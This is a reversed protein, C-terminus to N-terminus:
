NRELDMDLALSRIEKVLVNFSEPMGADIVHDGKVINEYVKTRGTIDDSKVTLMEQLTYSAGYAELAWVEMEGFRQGGFQAKGGLPQQTVLSYPGTSRAHMKDDVLHHLKLYHMYGIMVPREFQEGTRGDYLWAQSRSATLRMRAAVDDPYALELMKGIEEETAGDFVPTAFPVGKKLNNALELVEEDTLSDIHASSGTTNYVKELYGRVSKAQATREDRLMDAIRYGVGKAAWGLHVELVQGVNMRSPVGLPNLVIDAPTGDAMHPMDEVPTIRSVVGKNGHRGAMKDGPQLRRKVALYVKIMKLVGPPLEDGQTLKKRKEEFALDFQHRKQELSEKAQELVVAHQEDALRIDFWQWRDLDALYAKTLTAGKALKRPGGNVTKGVLMKEIRDFQDNEVIRLQDNLDQRYRRLEDDIISQARKDRVIGERTFVQVDIVTGTMGSPVRLSTDKVDSAKEGFIARLLKEEPTLQTEGKPTVKGVLVDDASVEAGIYVIGSDDLRNLQTEALNSIDRTIEEPGLKTDRAVVTLEEIHISTYRDDAVVRESILISDEFNYGNWPMFAILMNQGLALEGLDTSAGDALVDGKAVKDGRAVIPRQNINTNQNSRTYKILNYIDVGVEGAVNEEDNVRIVVRDADVHDVVGGRLAQVTTGSDVAVTREVGTGVLPKEPRLCPVAQRQMNAGMLARNADDHELFPILSAAVSVIQSPAVDMYHVNGPATLMTEGAERCAVLDDVFRGEDDLAANAQAIVYHSEEIASLYDIQDSVKGDIIKRYPTELFGYENLRAYLAMSNILGINPGEPTEIPCVRGYHTPHVDRVEFGARERTLGGPGLASVRRKHTIESLPNTQDMFQSLQSSGFFEKIAASIPKSNILDHPMLNETEAQGLREKVAREVRVLGARFQNEALEGVCRVRRNGLHDIDDIQGRGNRLEVLVKITELIDENTLTMPGTSDDGRGLRSNVKMRGVRSLDYTEESYFLRQFLAEVAEETPPEGPRMMRYIAVRAAMQDATEDARLTQSIYPGRDLDNTYLTQIDRVNAARMANLVSETIEDNAHAVVEGTDPDVINKALVRGYLFDEPVSVRQIGGAALDRLHKANIRKDKEVIVKGDRDAIDFRAMEGKWREAVFEMMGGESKLEFNDFDFFHALISEPTMGIAKLLITVPMKRRRDVRFFLVDKPDFEFDLWSGRYPIVRASFLLKGSSHTKGRDHEFFVGPSRHLQSVIVRETGNIVFSGTGTMLPIEGMYVEQEKVEKITPKSVERDLLVLRVKARLPSAYTLGRQQCEKVDFVPEGLAYSVFELRAMGNHSVIPFISSFAAQLGENVRDSTATDAQLFTLYSQLQTALLFPVNQVDERKAFSKRIRKKETYSYPM